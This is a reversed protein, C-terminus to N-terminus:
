FLYIAFIFELCCHDQFKDKHFEAIFNKWWSYYRTKKQNKKTKNETKDHDNTMYGVILFVASTELGSANLKAALLESPLCDFVRFILQCFVLYLYRPGFMPEIKSKTHYVINLLSVREFNVVSLLFYKVLSLICNTIFVDNQYKQCTKCYVLQDIIQKVWQIFKKFVLIINALEM